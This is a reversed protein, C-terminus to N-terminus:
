PAAYRTGTLYRGLVNDITHAAEMAEGPTLAQESLLRAIQPFGALVSLTWEYEQAAASSRQGEPPEFSRSSGGGVSLRELDIEQEPLSIREGTAIGQVVAIVRPSLMSSMRDLALAGRQVAHRLCEEPAPNVLAQEKENLVPNPKGLM